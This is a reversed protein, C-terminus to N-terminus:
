EAKAPKPWGYENGAIDLATEVADVLEYDYSYVATIILACVRKVANDPVNEMGSALKLARVVVEHKAM